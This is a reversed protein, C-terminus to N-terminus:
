MRLAIAASPSSGRVRRSAAEESYRLSGTPTAGWGSKMLATACSSVSSLARRRSSSSSVTSARKPRSREVEVQKEVAVPDDVLRSEGNGM